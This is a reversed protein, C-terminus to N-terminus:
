AGGDGASRAVFERLRTHEVLQDLTALTFVKGKTALLMKRMDERRVRFGRGDVCAILEFSPDGARERRDRDAALNLIRSVKDRATGDDSTIKAEIISAPAVETPVFFDPAQEFGPVREARKTARFSIRARTLREEIASEMVLGVLSSVADRHSAFPRGLYREYLLVAYPVHQAAAYRLSEIGKATDFKDLRHVTDAAATPAGKTIYEVAVAILADVREKRKAPVAGAFLSRRARCRTDLGRADGQPVDTNRETRAIEAWEPPSMGFITRLVVMVLADRRLAAWVTGHDFREFAATEQKLVEYATQFEAFDILGKGRPLVLFQSVMDGFTVDIMEDLHGRLHAEDVEFPHPL